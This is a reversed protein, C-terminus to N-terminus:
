SQKANLGLVKISLRHNDYNAECLYVIEASDILQFTMANEVCKQEILKLEGYSRCHKAIYRKANEIYRSPDTFTPEERLKGGGARRIADWFIGVIGQATGSAVGVLIEHGGGTAGWSLFSYSEDLAYTGQDRLAEGLCARVQTGTVADDEVFEFIEISSAPEAPHQTEFFVVVRENAYYDDDLTTREM